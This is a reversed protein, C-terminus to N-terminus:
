LAAGSLIRCTRAFVCSRWFSNNQSYRRMATNPSIRSSSAGCSACWFRAISSRSNELIKVMPGFIYSYVRGFSLSKHNEPFIVLESELRSIPCFSLSKRSLVESFYMTTKLPDWFVIKVSSASASRREWSSWFFSGLCDSAHFTFFSSNKLPTYCYVKENRKEFLIACNKIWFWYSRKRNRSTRKESFDNQFILFWSNGSM